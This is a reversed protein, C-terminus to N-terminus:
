PKRNSNFQDQSRINAVDLRLAAINLHNRLNIMDVPGRNRRDLYALTIPIIPWGVTAVILLPLPDRVWQLALVVLVFEVLTAVFIKAGLM